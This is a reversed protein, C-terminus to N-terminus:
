RRRRILGVFGLLPLVAASPEPIAAYIQDRYTAIDEMATQQGLIATLAGGPQNDYTSVTFMMGALEWSSGNYVFAGGGSDGNVAQAEDAYAANDFSSTFYRVDTGGANVTAVSASAVDNLGWRVEHTEPLITKYGAHNALSPTTETWIDNNPGAVVTQNWYTPSAEQVRGNGVMIMTDNTPPSISSLNVTPLALPAALQFVVMDTYTTLGMGTPNLIQQWTGPQTAYAVGGFTATAPLSGAVHNATLVWGNGLYIGSGSGNVEGVNGFYGFSPAVVSPATNNINGSINVVARVSMSSLAIVGLVWPTRKKM